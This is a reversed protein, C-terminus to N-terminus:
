GRCNEVLFFTDFQDYFEGKDRPLETLHWRYLVEKDWLSLFLLQVFLFMETFNSYKKDM